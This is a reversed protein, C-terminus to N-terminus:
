GTVRVAIITIDDDQEHEGMHATVETVISDRVEFATSGRRVAEEARGFGFMEGAPSRAEVVGDSVLVVIDGIGLKKECQEFRTNEAVGLPLREGEVSIATVRDGSRHLPDLGGANAIQLIGREGDFLAVTCCIYTNRSARGWFTANLLELLEAPQTTQRAAATVMGSFLVAPIAAQMAHGTVDAVVVGFKSRDEDDWVYAFYDGGVRSAARCIGTIEFGPVAPDVSPLLANQLKQAVQLERQLESLLQAQARKWRRNRQYAIATAFGIGVAAVVTPVVFWPTRWFPPEVAFTASVGTGDDNGEQDLTRVTFVHEGAPLEEFTHATAPSFPSPEGADLRWSYLLDKAPTRGFRDSGTWRVTLFGPHAVREPLPEIFSRPPDSSTAHYRSAAGDFHGFLLSGDGLLTSASVHDEALGSEKRFTLWQGRFYRSVGGATGVWITRYEDEVISWVDDSALGSDVTFHTWRGGAYRSVGANPSNGGVWVSGDRAACLASIHEFRVSNQGDFASWRVGDFRSLGNRMGAWIGGATDEALALVDDTGAGQSGSLREWSGNRFRFVGRAKVDGSVGAWVDGNRSRLFAHITSKGGSPLFPPIRRWQSAIHRPSREWITPPPVPSAIAVWLRGDPFSLLASVPKGRLEAPVRDDSFRKGDFLLLGHTTGVWQIGDGTRAFCSVRASEPLGDGADYSWWPGGRRDFRAVGRGPIVFWFADDLAYVIKSVLRGTVGVQRVSHGIWAGDRFELLTGAPSGVAWLSGDPMPLLSAATFSSAFRDGVFRELSGARWRLVGHGATGFWIAGDRTQALSLYEVSPLGIERAVNRWTAGSYVYIESHGNNDGFIAWVSGDQDGFLVRVPLSPLTGDASTFERWSRREYVSVTTRPRPAAGRKDRAFQGDEAPSAGVWIAGDASEALATINGQQVPYHWQHAIYKALGESTGIWLTGDASYLLNHFRASPSIGPIEKKVFQTGDHLALGRDTTLWVGGGIEQVLDNTYLSAIEKPDEFFRWRSSELLPDRATASAAASLVILILRACVM